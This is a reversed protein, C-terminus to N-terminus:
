RKAKLQATIKDLSVRTEFKNKGDIKLSECAANFQAVARELWKPDANEVLPLNVYLEVQKGGALGFRHLMLYPVGFKATWVMTRWSDGDFQDSLVALGEYNNEYVGDSLHRVTAEKPVVSANLSVRAQQKAKEAEAHPIRFHAVGHTKTSNHQSEVWEPPLSFTVAGDLFSTLREDEAQAAAAPALLIIFAVSYAIRRLM